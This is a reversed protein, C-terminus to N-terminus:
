IVKVLNINTGVQTLNCTRCAIVCNGINHGISNDLREITGLDPQNIIYQIPETCYHCKNGSQTLLGRVYDYTIFQEENYRNRRIDAVKSNRVMNICIKHIEDGCERCEARTRRHPCRQTGECDICIAKQKKHCCMSSGNCDVCQYKAKEHICKYKATYVKSQELCRECTKKPTGNRKYVPVFYCKCSSCKPHVIGPGTEM